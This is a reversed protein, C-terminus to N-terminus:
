KKPKDMRFAEALHRAAASRARGLANESLMQVVRLRQEDCARRLRDLLPRLEARAAYRYVPDPGAESVRELLGCRSLAELAARALEDSQELQEAVESATRVSPRIRMFLLLAALEEFSSVHNCLFIQLEDSEDSPM